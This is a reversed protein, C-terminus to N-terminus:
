GRLSRQRNGGLREDVEILPAGISGNCVAGDRDCMAQKSAACSAIGRDPVIEKSRSISRFPSRGAVGDGNGARQFVRFYLRDAFFDLISSLRYIFRKCSM